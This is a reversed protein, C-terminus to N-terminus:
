LCIIDPGESMSGGREGFLKSGQLGLESTHFLSVTTKFSEGETLLHSWQQREPSPSLHVQKAMHSPFDRGRAGEWAKQWCEIPASSISFEGKWCAQIVLLYHSLNEKSKGHCIENGRVIEYEPFKSCTFLAMSPKKEKRKKEWLPQLSCLYFLESLISSTVKLCM